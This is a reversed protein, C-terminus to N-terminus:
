IFFFLCVFLCVFLYAVVLGALPFFFLFFSVVAGVVTFYNLFIDLLTSLSGFCLADYIQVPLNTDESIKIGGGGVVSSSSCQLM